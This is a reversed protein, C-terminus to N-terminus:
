GGSTAKGRYVGIKAEARVKRRTQVASLIFRQSPKRMKPSDCVPCKGAADLPEGCDCETKAM